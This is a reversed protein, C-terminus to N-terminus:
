WRGTQLASETRWSCGGNRMIFSVSTGKARPGLVDRVELPANVHYRLIISYGPGVGAVLAMSGAIRPFVQFSEGGQEASPGVPLPPSPNSQGNGDPPTVFPQLVTNYTIV